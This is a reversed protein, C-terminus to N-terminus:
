FGTAYEATHMPYYEMFFDRREKRGVCKERQIISQLAQSLDFNENSFNSDFVLVHFFFVM